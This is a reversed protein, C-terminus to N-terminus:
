FVEESEIAQTCGREASTRAALALELAALSQEARVVTEAEGTVVDLFHALETRYPDDGSMGPLPIPEVTAASRAPRLLRVPQADASHYQLLGGSGAVEIATTFPGPFGWTGTIQSIVGSRHRVTAMGQAFPWEGAQEVLQAYVRAAPGFQVLAWDFDHIMLDLFIGGSRATERYWGGNGLPYLGQRLLTCTVATGIEGDRLATAMRQYESMFRVVHAVLLHVGADRCAAVMARGDAATLALPKECIVHSGRRVAAETVTRHLPTPLCCDVVDVTEADLVAEVDGYVRANLPAALAQAADLDRDAVAVVVAGPISRYARTHVHGVAGAGLLAIRASM